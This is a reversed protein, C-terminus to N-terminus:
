SNIMLVSETLFIHSIKAAHTDLKGGVLSLKGVVSTLKCPESIM